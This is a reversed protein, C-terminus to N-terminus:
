EEQENEVHFVCFALKEALGTTSFQRHKNSAISPNTVPSLLEPSTTLLLLEQRPCDLQRHLHSNPHLFQIQSVSSKM